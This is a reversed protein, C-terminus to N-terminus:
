HGKKGNRYDEFDRERDAVGSVLSAAPAFSVAALSRLSVSSSLAERIASRCRRCCALALLYFQLLLDLLSYSNPKLWM